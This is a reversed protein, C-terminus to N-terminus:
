FRAEWRRWYGPWDEIGIPQCTAIASRRGADTCSGPGSSGSSQLASGICSKAGTPLQGAACGSCNSMTPCGSLAGVPSPEVAVLKARLARATPAAGFKAAPLNKGRIEFSDFFSRYSEDCSVEDMQKSRPAMVYEWGDRTTLTSGFKYNHPQQPPRRRRHGAEPLPRPLRPCREPEQQWRGTERVSLELKNVSDRHYAVKEENQQCFDKANDVATEQSTAWYDGSAGHCVKRDALPAPHSASRTSSWTGLRRMLLSRRIFFKSEVAWYARFLMEGGWPAPITLNRSPTSSLTRTVTIHGSRRTPPPSRTPPGRSLKKSRPTNPSPILAITFGFSTM